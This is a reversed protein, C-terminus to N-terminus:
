INAPHDPDSSGMQGARVFWVYNVIAPDVMSPAVMGDRMDIGFVDLMSVDRWTSSWYIDNVNGQVNTFGQNNLWTATNTEGANVLSELENVNPLRWDISGEWM